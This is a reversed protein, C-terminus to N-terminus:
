STIENGDSYKGENEVDWSEEVHLYHSQLNVYLIYYIEWM